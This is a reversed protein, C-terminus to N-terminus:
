RDPHMFFEEWDKLLMESNSQTACNMVELTRKGGLLNKVDTM